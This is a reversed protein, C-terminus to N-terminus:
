EEILFHLYNKLLGSIRIPGEENPRRLCSPEPFEPINKPIRAYMKTTVTCPLPVQKTSDQNGATKRSRAILVCTQMRRLVGNASNDYHELQVNRM